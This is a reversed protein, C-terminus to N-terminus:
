ERLEEFVAQTLYQMLYAYLEEGEASYEVGIQKAIKFVSHLIEHALVGYDKESKPKNPMYVLTGKPLSFTTGLADGNNIYDLVEKAISEDFYKELQEKLLGTDGFHFMVQQSFLGIEVTFNDAITEKKKSM